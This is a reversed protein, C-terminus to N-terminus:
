KHVRKTLAYLLILCLFGLSTYYLSSITGTPIGGMRKNCPRTRRQRRQTFAERAVSGTIPNTRTPFWSAPMNKLDATAVYNTASSVSNNSDITELTISQCDPTSGLLFAQFLAFPNLAAASSMTGPILGSLNSFQVDGLGSSIFPINGDPVNNIYVYREVVNGNSADNSKVKCKAGTKLFFKNGLPKGTVSAEGSGSVLVEVYAILASIDDSLHSMGGESTVGLESPTKIQKFYQYDPGLLEEQVNDLDGLVDEFFSPM